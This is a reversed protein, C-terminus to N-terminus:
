SVTLIKTDSQFWKRPKITIQLKISHIRQTEKRSIAKIDSEKRAKPEFLMLIHPLNFNIGQPLFPRLYYRIRTKSIPLLSISLHPLLLISFPVKYSEM